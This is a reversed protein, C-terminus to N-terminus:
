PVQSKWLILPQGGSSTSGAKEWSLGSAWLVNDKQRQNGPAIVAVKSGSANQRLTDGFAAYLRRLKRSDSRLGWPPNTFILGQNQFDFKSSMLASHSFNIRDEVRAIEACKQAVKVIGQDRDYGKYKISVPNKTIIAKKASQIVDQFREENFSSWKQFAYSNNKLMRYRSLGPATNSAILAAEILVTGSGCFPDIIEVNPDERLIQQLFAAVVTERIPM